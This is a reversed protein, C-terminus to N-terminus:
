QNSEKPLETMVGWDNFVYMNTGFKKYWFGSHDEKYKELLGHRHQQFQGLDRRRRWREL